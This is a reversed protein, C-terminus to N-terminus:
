RPRGILSGRTAATSKAFDLFPPRLHGSPSVALSPLQPTPVANIRDFESPRCRRQTGNTRCHRFDALRGRAPKKKRDATSLNLVQRHRHEGSTARAGGVKRGVPGDYSPEVSALNEMPRAFPALLRSRSLRARSVRRSATSPM